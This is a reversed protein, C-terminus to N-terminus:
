PLQRCVGQLTYRWNINEGIDPMRTPPVDVELQAKESGFSVLQYHGQAASDLCTNQYVAVGDGRALWRRVTAHAVPDILALVETETYQKM